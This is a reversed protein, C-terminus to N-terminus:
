AIRRASEKARAGHGLRQFGIPTKSGTERAATKMGIRPASRTPRSLRRDDAIADIESRRVAVDVTNVFAVAAKDPFELRGIACLRRRAHHAISQHDSIEVM